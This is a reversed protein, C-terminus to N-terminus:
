PREPINPLGWKEAFLARMQVTRDYRGDSYGITSAPSHRLPLDARIVLEFDDSKSIRYGLDVDEYDHPAFREDFGDLIMWANRHMGIYYGSPYPIVTDGFVNWGARHSIQQHCIVERPSFEGLMELFDGLIAVDSSLLHLYEGTANTAAKNFGPGFGINRHTGPLALPLPFTQRRTALTLRVTPDESGNDFVIVELDRRYSLYREVENLRAEILEPKNYTLFILSHRYDSM